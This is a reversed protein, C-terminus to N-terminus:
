YRYAFALAHRFHFGKRRRALSPLEKAHPNSATFSDGTLYMIALHAVPRRAQVAQIIVFDHIVQFDVYVAVDVGLTDLIEPGAELPGAVAGVHAHFGEMQETVNVLLGEAADVAIGHIICVPEAVENALDYALAEHVLFKGPLLPLRFRFDDLRGRPGLGFIAAWGKEM